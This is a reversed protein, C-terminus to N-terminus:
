WLVQSPLGCSLATKRPEWVRRSEVQADRELLNKQKTLVHTEQSLKNRLTSLLGNEPGTPTGKGSVCLYSMPVQISSLCFKKWNIAEFSLLSGFLAVHFIACLSLTIAFQLPIPCNTNTLQTKHDEQPSALKFLKQLLPSSAELQRPPILTHM